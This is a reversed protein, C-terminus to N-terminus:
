GEFNSVLRNRWKGGNLLLASRLTEFELIEFSVGALRANTGRDRWLEAHVNRTCYKM